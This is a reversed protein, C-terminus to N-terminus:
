QHSGPCRPADRGGGPRAALDRAARGDVALSADRWSEVSLYLHASEAPPQATEIAKLLPEIEENTRREAVREWSEDAGVYVAAWGVPRVNEPLHTISGSEAIRASLTLISVTRSVNDDYRPASMV